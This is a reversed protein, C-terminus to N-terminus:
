KGKWPKPERKEIFARTAEGFDETLHLSPMPNTAVKSPAEAELQYMRRVRTVTQVALPPNQVVQRALDKAAELHDDGDGVCVNILNREKAEAGTFARGTLAMEDAFAGAGRFNLLAWIVAGNLGKITETVQFTASETAVILDCRLAIATAVGVCHGHVAAIVPKWKLCQNFQDLWRTDPSQVGFLEIEHRPRNQRDKVDAGSCFSRGAGSLIGIRASTDLDLRRFTDYIQKAVEDNIANLREPRNLQIHAIGDDDVAYTVYEPASATM